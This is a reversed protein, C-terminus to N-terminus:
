RQSPVPWCISCRALKDSEELPAAWIWSSGAGPVGTGEGGLVPAECTGGGRSAATRGALSHFTM